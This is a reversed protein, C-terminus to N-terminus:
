KPQKGSAERVLYQAFKVVVFSSLILSVTSVLSAGFLNIHPFLTEIFMLGLVTLTLTATFGVFLISLVLLLDVVSKM